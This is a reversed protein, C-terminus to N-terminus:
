NFTGQTNLGTTAEAQKTYNPDTPQQPTSTQQAGGVQPLKAELEAKRQQAEEQRQQADRIIADYQAIMAQIRKQMLDADQGAQYMQLGLTTDLAGTLRNMDSMAARNHAIRSADDFTEMNFANQLQGGLVKNYQNLDNWNDTIAARRGQVYSSFLDPIFIAM